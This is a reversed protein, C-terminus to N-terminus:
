VLTDKSVVNLRMTRVKGGREILGVVAPKEYHVRKRRKDYKGGVYTEDVEVTRKLGPPPQAVRAHTTSFNSFEDNIQRTRLRCKGKAGPYAARRGASGGRYLRAQKRLAPPM